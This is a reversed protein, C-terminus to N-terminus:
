KNNEGAMERLKQPVTGGSNEIAQIMIRAAHQHEADWVIPKKKFLRM